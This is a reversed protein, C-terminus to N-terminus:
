DEPQAQQTITIPTSVGNSTLTLTATRPTTATNASMTVSVTYEGKKAFSTQTPVAWESDSTLTANEAYTQFKVSYSTVNYKLSTTFTKKWDKFETETSGEVIGNPTKVDLWAYQNVVAAFQQKDYSSNIVFYSNRNSGTTNPTLKVAIPVVAYNGSPVDFKSPSATIWDAESSLTWSDYSLFQVTDTQQDAYCTITSKSLESHHQEYESGDCATLAVSCVLCAM